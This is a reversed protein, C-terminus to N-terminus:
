FGVDRSYNKTLTLTDSWTCIPIFCERFNSGAQNMAKQNLWPHPGKIILHLLGILWPDRPLLQCFTDRIISRCRRSRTGGGQKDKKIQLTVLGRWPRVRKAKDHVHVGRVKGPNLKGVLKQQWFCFYDLRGLIKSWNLVLFVNKRRIIDNSASFNVWHVKNLQRIMM